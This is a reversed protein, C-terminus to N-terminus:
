CDPTSVRMRHRYVHAIYTCTLDALGSITVPSLAGRCRWGGIIQRCQGIAITAQTADYADPRQETIALLSRFTRLKADHQTPLTSATTPLTAWAATLLVGAVAFIAVIHALPKM